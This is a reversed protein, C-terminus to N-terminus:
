FVGELVSMSARLAARIGMSTDKVNLAKFARRFGKKVSALSHRMVIVTNRCSLPGGEAIRAEGSCTPFILFFVFFLFFFASLIAGSASRLKKL